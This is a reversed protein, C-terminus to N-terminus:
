ECGGPLSTVARGFRALIAGLFIVSSRMEHMLGEPIECNTIGASDVILTDGERHVGCGLHRLINISSRVDKLDPCGHIVNKGSNLVTAALIPLVANKAGHVRAEGELTKGGEIVLKDM